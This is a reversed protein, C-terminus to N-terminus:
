PLLLDDQASKRRPGVLVPAGRVRRDAVHVLYHGERADITLRGTAHDAILPSEARRGALKGGLEETEFTVRQPRGSQNSIVLSIQGAGVAGPSIEISDAHIAGTLTVPVPPRNHNVRTSGGGCGAALCMVGALAARRM